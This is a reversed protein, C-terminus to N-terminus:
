CALRNYGWEHPKMEFGKKRFEREKKLQRLHERELLRHYLDDLSDHYKGRDQNYRRREGEHHKLTENLITKNPTMCVDRSISVPAISLLGIIFCGLATKPLNIQKM